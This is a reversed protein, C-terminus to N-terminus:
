GLVGLEVETLSAVLWGDGNLQASLITVALSSM